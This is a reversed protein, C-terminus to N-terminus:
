GEPDQEWRLLRRVARCFPCSRTIATGLLTLGVALEVFSLPLSEVVM